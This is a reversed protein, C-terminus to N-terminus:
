KRRYHAPTARKLHTIWHAIATIEAQIRASELPDTYFRRLMKLRELAVYMAKQLNRDVDSFLSLEGAGATNSDDASLLRRLKYSGVSM